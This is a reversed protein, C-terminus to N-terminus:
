LTRFEPPLHDCVNLHTLYWRGRKWDLGTIGTNYVDFSMADSGAVFRLLTKILGGHTVALVPGGAADAHRLLEELASRAQAKFRAYERSPEYQRYSEFPSSVVPLHQAVHFPAEALSDQTQPELGIAASIYTATEQARRLPSVRLMAIRARGTCELRQESALWRALRAAQEHGTQTLSADLDDREIQWASQAHRTLYIM